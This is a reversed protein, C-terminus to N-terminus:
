NGTRRVFSVEWDPVWQKWRSAGSIMMKISSPPLCKGLLANAVLQADGELIIKKLGLDGALLLGEEFAKAEVEVAGLPFNLKKSMAGMIQGQDNRIVVGIGCSSSEKFVAGDVNAKYWGERPAMWAQSRLVVPLKERSNGIRFEEVLREAEKVIVKGAKGRGEFKLSNRNKWICWATTAFCEWDVERSGEWFKWVIEMFDRHACRFKPLLLNSERWVAGAVECDWLAHGSSEVM